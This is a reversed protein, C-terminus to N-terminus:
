IKRVDAVTVSTPTQRGFIDITLRLRTDADIREIAVDPGEEVIGFFTAFPGNVVQVHDGVRFIYEVPTGGPIAGDGEAERKRLADILQPSIRAPENGVCVFGVVGPHDLLRGIGPSAAVFVLQPLFPVVASRMLTVASDRQARSLKRQPVRRMERIMPYYTEYGLTGLNRLWDIMREGRGVM